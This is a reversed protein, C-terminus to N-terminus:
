KQCLTPAIRSSTETASVTTKVALSNIKLSCDTLTGFQMLGVRTVLQFTAGFMASGILLSYETLLRLIQIDFMGGSTTTSVTSTFWPESVSICVLHTQTTSICHKLTYGKNLLIQQIM